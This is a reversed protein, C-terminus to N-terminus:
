KKKKLKLKFVEQSVSNNDNLENIGPHIDYNITKPDVYIYGLIYAFEKTTLQMRYYIDLDEDKYHRGYNMARLGEYFNKRPLDYDLDSM